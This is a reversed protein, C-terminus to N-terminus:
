TGMGELLARAELESAERGDPWFPLHAAQIAELETCGTAGAIQLAPITELMVACEWRSSATQTTIVTFGMDELDNILDTKVQSMRQGGKADHDAMGELM